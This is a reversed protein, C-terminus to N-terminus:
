GHQIGEQISDAIQRGTLGCLQYLQQVAGAPVFGAGCNFRRCYAPPCGNEILLAELGQGLCGTDCCDEVVALRGTKQVSRIVQQEDFSSLSNLKLVEAQLGAQELLQAAELTQNIMM